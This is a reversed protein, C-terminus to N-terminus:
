SNYCIDVVWLILRIAVFILLECFLAISIYHINSKCYPYIDDFQKKNCKNSIELIIMVLRAEYTHFMIQM